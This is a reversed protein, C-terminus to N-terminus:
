RLGLAFEKLKRLRSPWKGAGIKRVVDLVKPQEPEGIKVKAQVQNGAELQLASAEITGIAVGGAAVTLRGRTQLDGEFRGTLVVDRTMALQGKLMIGPHIEIVPEKTPM